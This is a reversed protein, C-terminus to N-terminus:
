KKLKNTKIKKIEDNIYDKGKIIFIILIPINLIIILLIIYSGINIIIGEKSFLLYFCKLLFLNTIGKINIFNNLLKDKDNIINSISHFLTKVQCECLAKKTNYNYGSFECNKECLSMNYNIFENRRDKIIIDTGKETTYGYCINNYYDSSSNHKILNNDNISVLYEIDITSDQCITLNLIEKKKMNYIEYEIIPILLENEFYDIKLIVLSNTDNIKYYNKLKAECEKFKIKSPEEPLINTSSKELRRISINNNQNEFSTIQYIMDKEIILLDNKNEYITNSISLDFSGNLLENKITLIKDDKLNYKKFYECIMNQAILSFGKITSNNYFIMNNHINNSYINIKTDKCINLDLKEKTIPHYIDYEITPVLLGNEYKDYKFIILSDNDNINYYNKLKAECEGIDITSSINSKNNISTKLEGNYIQNQIEGIKLDLINYDNSDNFLQLSHNNLQLQNFPLGDLYKDICTYNNLLTTYTGLPCSEYCINNYEYKYNDDKSCDFICKKNQTLKIEKGKTFCVDSCNNKNPNIQSLINNNNENICYIIDENCSYFLKNMHTISSTNFNILNLSILSSCYSFMGNMDTVSSTNFNTLNIALLSTCNYFMYNMNTVKSSDFNSLDIKKINSLNSFMSNCNTFSYNWKITIINEQNKLDYVMYGTYNQITGNIIIESPTNNFKIGNITQNNLIFQNGKGKITIVIFNTKTFIHESFFFLIILILQLFHKYIKFKTFKIRRELKNYSDNLKYLKITQNSYKM